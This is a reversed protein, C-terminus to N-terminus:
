QKLAGKWRYIGGFDVLREYGESRLTDYAIGSRTGSRCYVIIVPNGETEPLEEAIQQYPVNIATPIHGSDYEMATRVDVLMYQTEGEEILTALGEPAAYSELAPDTVQQSWLPASLLVVFVIVLLAFRKRM